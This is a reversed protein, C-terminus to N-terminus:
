AREGQAAQEDRGDGEARLRPPAADDAGSRPGGKRPLAGGIAAANSVMQRLVDNKEGFASAFGDRLVLLKDVAQVASPRHAIVIVIGGRERAAMIARTVSAEGPADLNSNPEDLVLLFPDGFLARALGIRQRQGASLHMGGQGVRTNFGDPLQQVLDFCGAAHAALFVSESAADPDFRSINQAITGDFLQIDHPLYGIHRGLVEQDWHALSAGDLAVTGRMPQWLGVIARALTSKGSASQGIVGLGDGSQLQFTVGKIIVAGNTPAAVVLNEVSLVRSPPMLRLRENPEATLDFFRVLRDYGQRAQQFQKYSGVAMDVPSIARASIISAAIITGATMEGKIVLYAGVGLTASQVAMRLTRSGSAMGSAIDNAALALRSSQANFGSWRKLMADLMGMSVIAESGGITASALMNRHSAREFAALNPKRTRLESMVAVLVLLAASFTAFLGIVPHLFFCILLYFPLWPLDFVAVPGPGSLFSRIADLDRFPQMQEGPMGPRLANTRVLRAYLPPGTALDIREAIRGFIRTRVIDLFGMFVFAALAILSLMVLTPVSYSLLVRDYVQLMYFSGTLMLINIIGSFLVLALLAGRCDRLAAIMVNGASKKGARSPGGFTM